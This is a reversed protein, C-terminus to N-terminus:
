IGVSVSKEDVTNGGLERRLVVWKGTSSQPPCFNIMALELEGLVCLLSDQSNLVKIRAHNHSYIHYLIEYTTRWFNFKRTVLANKQLYSIELFISRKM